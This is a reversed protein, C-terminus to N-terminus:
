ASVARTLAAYDVKGNGTLPIAEVQRMLWSRRPLGFLDAMVEGVLGPDIDDRACALAVTGDIEVARIAGFRAIATEVEDLNLRNGDVKAYRSRRGAVYLYGDSDLRGIDGTMLRAGLEDPAAIDEAKTAYGLMVNRGEYGIEGLGETGDPITGDPISGDPISGDPIPDNDPAIWLKGQIPRGVSGPRGEFESPPLVTVRATAETLGYMVVVQRGSSRAHARLESATADDLRGGAQTLTRVPGLRDLLRLRVLAQYMAPVGPISSCRFERVCEWFGREAISRGVLVTTAGAALHSHLISLGYASTLPLNAVARETPEIALADAIAVANSTVADKSLRVLKPSATSGSTSLLLALELHPAPTAGSAILQAQGAVAPGAVAPGAPRLRPRFRAYLQEKRVPSANPDVLLVANGSAMAGLYWVVDAVTRSPECAVIADSGCTRRIASAAEGVRNELEGYTVAIGREAEILAIDDPVAATSAFPLTATM